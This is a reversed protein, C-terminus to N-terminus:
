KGGLKEYNNILNIMDYKLNNRVVISYLMTTYLYISLIKTVTFLQNLIRTNTKM